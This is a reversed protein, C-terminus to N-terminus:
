SGICESAHCAAAEQTAYHDGRRLVWDQVLSIRGALKNTAGTNLTLIVGPVGEACFDCLGDRGNVEDIFPLTCSSCERYSAHM